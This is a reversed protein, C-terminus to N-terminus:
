QGVGQISGRAPVPRQRKVALPNMELRERAGDEGVLLVGQQDIQKVRMGNVTDGVRVIQGDISAISRSPSSLVVRLGATNANAGPRGSAPAAAAEPAASPRFSSGLGTFSDAAQCLGAYAAIWLASLLIPMRGPISGPPKSACRKPISPQM